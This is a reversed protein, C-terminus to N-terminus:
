TITKMRSKFQQFNRNSIPVLHSGLKVAQGVLSEIKSVNVIYSRHVKVFDPHKIENFIVNMNNSLKYRKDKTFLDCYARDARLFLIDALHVKVYGQQDNMWVFIFDDSNPQRGQKGLAANSAALEIARVLDIENFPKTLFSAPGTKKAREFTQADTFDTLYVIPISHKEGITQATVIGDISGKLGIDMLILDPPSSSVFAIAEPGSSVIGLVNLNHTRLKSAIFEAVLIQDEVILVNIEESM